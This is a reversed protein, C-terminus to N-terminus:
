RGGLRQDVLDVLQLPLAVRDDGGVVVHRRVDIVQCGVDFTVRQCKACVANSVSAWTMTSAPTWKMASVALIMLGSFVTRM